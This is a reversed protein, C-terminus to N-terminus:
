FPINSTNGCDPCRYMHVNKSSKKLKKERPHHCEDQVAKLEAEASKLADEAVEYASRCAKVRREASIRRQKISIPM